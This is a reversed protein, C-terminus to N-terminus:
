RLFEVTVRDVKQPNDKKAICDALLECLHSKAFPEWSIPAGQKAAAISDADVLETVRSASTVVRARSSKVTQHTMVGAALRILTFFPQDCRALSESLTQVMGLEEADRNSLWSFYGAHPRVNAKATDIFEDWESQKM